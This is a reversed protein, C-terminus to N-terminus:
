WTEPQSLTPLRAARSVGRVRTSAEVVTLWKVTWAQFKSRIMEGDSVVACVGDEKRRM